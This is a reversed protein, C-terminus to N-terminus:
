RFTAPPRGHCPTAPLCGRRALRRFRGEGVPLQLDVLKETTPEGGPLDRVGEPDTWLGHLGVPTPDLLLQLSVGTGDHPRGHEVELARGQGCEAAHDHRRRREEVLVTPEDGDHVALFHGDLRGIGNELTADVGAMNNTSHIVDTIGRHAYIDEIKGVAMVRQGAEVLRDLM